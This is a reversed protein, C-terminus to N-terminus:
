SEPRMARAIRDAFWSPYSESGLPFTRRVREVGSVGALRRVFRELVTPADAPVLGALVTAGDEPRRGSGDDAVPMWLPSEHSVWAAVSERQNPHRLDAQVYALPFEESEPGHTWWCAHSDLLQHYSRAASKLAVAAVKAIEAFTADPRRSVTGLVRWDVRSLPRDCPPIYYPEYTVPVGTPSLRGLLSVLRPATAESESVFHVRIKREEEDLVDRIFVVGEVLALDRLIRDVEGPQRVLLDAVFVRRGFLSPNPVVARDRLYGLQTLRRLRTRVGSESVGVREAIERPTVRPDIVRRGAWFRALGGPSLHRYIGFDLPDM